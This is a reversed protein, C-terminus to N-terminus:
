DWEYSSDLTVIVKYSGADIASTTGSLTYGTEEILPIQEKGNYTLKAATPIKVKFYAVPGAFAEFEKDDYNELKATVTVGIMKGILNTDELKFTKGTAGPILTKTSEDYGKEEDDTDLVNAYWWQYEFDAGQPSVFDTDATLTEGMSLKGDISIFGTIAAKGITLEYNTSAEEYQDTQASTVKEQVITDKPFTGINSVTVTTDEITIEAGTNTLEVSSM